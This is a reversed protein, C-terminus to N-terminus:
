LKKRLLRAPVGAYIGNAELDHTVVSHAGVVVNDGIVVGENIFVRFGIWCYNGISVSGKRISRQEKPLSLDQDAALNSTYAVFYHSISTHHGITVSTGDKSLLLSYMGIYSHAGLHITGTESLLIGEGNFRFTPDIDHIERYRAYRSENDLSRGRRYLSLLIRDVVNM